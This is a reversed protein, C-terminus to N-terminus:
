YIIYFQFGLLFIFKGIYLIYTFNGIKNNAYYWVVSNKFHEQRIGNSEM